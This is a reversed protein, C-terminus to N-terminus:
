RGRTYRKAVQQISEGVKMLAEWAAVALEQECSRVFEEFCTVLFFRHYEIIAGARVTSLTIGFRAIVHLSM